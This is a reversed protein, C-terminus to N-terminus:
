GSRISGGAPPVIATANTAPEVALPSAALPPDVNLAADVEVPTPATPLPEAERKPAAGEGLWEASRIVVGLSKTAPTVELAYANVDMGKPFNLRYCAFGEAQLQQSLKGAAADGAADRDYAILVCEIGLTQFLDLHADTFGGTGYSATVNRYGNVWFTMADILAECLIVEKQDMLGEANWVGAHPGPLYLHTATGKRLNDNVKRGYVEVVNGDVSFIPVVISGNFHEHGSDRLLGIAQLTGRVAAGAKRTKEPLRYGLTRNAYGLRFRDILAADGLGRRELYTLAEPCQKLTDHYFDIVQNLLQQAETDESLLVDLKKTTSRQAPKDVAALPQDARLLEVAHRFSIGQTKMVWDIVSGGADCAGLCHWLNADPSIVLSPTKDDHFPCHGIWDSGHPKLEVGSSEVLRLLSVAQKLREIVEDAIRAM